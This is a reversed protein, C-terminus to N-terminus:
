SRRGNRASTPRVLSADTTTIRRAKGSLPAVGQGGTWQQLAPVAAPASNIPAAGDAAAAPSAPLILVPVASIVTGAMVTRKM